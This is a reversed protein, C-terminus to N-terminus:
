STDEDPPLCKMKAWGGKSSKLDKAAELSPGTNQEAVRLKEDDGFCSVAMVMNWQPYASILTIYLIGEM